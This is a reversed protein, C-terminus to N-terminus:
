DKRNFKDEIWSLWRSLVDQAHVPDQPFHGAIPYAIFQVEVNNDKLAHYLKYSQTIPVRADGTNSLILTPTKINDAYAMPSQEWYAKANDNVWPSGGLGYGYWTNLDAMNYEDQFDTVAAGAVAAAWGDYNGILWATMYGGYSWGSVATRKEDVIGRAKLVALGSMIDKAPGKGADNIIARQFENGMNSSGRYNPSFVIWDQAALVHRFIQPGYFGRMSSYMPGGHISLVLPYKKKPDFNEPLTLVGNLDFGDHSKWNLTETKGKRLNKLHKNFHTLSKPKSKTSKAYYVELPNKPDAGVFALQGQNSVSISSVPEVGDWKLKRSKGSTSVQWVSTTTRDYGHLLMSKSDPLWIGKVERDIEHGIYVDKENKSNLEINKIFVGLTSFSPEDGLSYGYALYKGDPSFVPVSAGKPLHKGFEHQKAENVDIVRAVTDVFDAANPKPQSNYAILDGDNSWAFLGSFAAGVNDSGQTLKKVKSDALSLLWLSSPLTASKALYSNNGVEFSKNHKEIGEKPKPLDQSTFAIDKGDPRWSFAAIHSSSHSLQVAEGGAMSLNFIQAKFGPGAALFALSKGDPAWRPHIVRFRNSVLVRQEGTEIDIVVLQNEHRNLELNIRSVIVAIQKGDPSIQPDLLQVVKNMDQLSISQNVSATSTSITLITSLLMVITTTVNKKINLFNIQPPISLM